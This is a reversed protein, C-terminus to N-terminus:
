YKFVVSVGLLHESYDPSQEGLPLVRGISDYTVGDLAWDRSVYDEYTYNLRLKLNKKMRYDAYLKITHVDASTEPFPLGTALVVNRDIFDIKGRSRSYTYDIGLDLKNRINKQKIGLGISDITDDYDAYWNPLWDPPPADAIGDISGAQDSTINEHSYFLYGTLDKKLLVSSDLTFTSQNSQSLGIVTDGYEEDMYQATVGLSVREHPQWSMNMVLSEQDRDAINYKRLLPNDDSNSVYGSGERDALGLKLVLQVDNTPRLRLKLKLRDEKTEEVESFTRNIKEHEYGGSLRAQRYMRYDAGLKLLQKKYSYPENTAIATRAGDVDQSDGWVYNYTDQPTHNDREDIRLSANLRLHRSTQSVLSIQGTTLYVKGDLSPRPLAKALGANITFPQFTEDQVQLGLAYIGSVRTADSLKYVGHMSLQHFQNDPPLALNGDTYRAGTSTYPSEWALADFGNVFLSMHYNLEYQLKGKNYELSLDMRHDTYDIPQPLMAIRTNGPSHGVVGGVPLLGEKTDMQYDFGVSWPNHSTIVAGFGLRKRETGIELSKLSNGTQTMANTDNGAVWGAPLTLSATEVGNFITKGKYQMSPIQDYSLYAKYAEVAGWSFLMSRSDLGIDDVKLFSYSTSDDYTAVDLNGTVYLGKNYLGTYRGFRMADDSLYALGLEASGEVHTDSVGPESEPYPDVGLTLLFQNRTFDYSGSALPGGLTMDNSDRDIFRYDAALYIGRTLYYKLGLGASLDKDERGIDNFDSVGYGLAVNGKLWASFRHELRTNLSTFLYGSSGELTTESLSRNLTATLRSKASPFWNLKAGVDAKSVSDFRSDDYDQSIFGARAELNLTKGVKHQVGVALNYGDSDRNYGFTDVANNYQRQDLLGRVFVKSNDSIKHTVRMGLGTILRDRDDNLLTGTARPINDYDLDEVTAAIRYIFDNRTVSYGIHMNRSIYTTPTIGSLDDDPSSRSEHEFSYGVGGFINTRRTLDYRGQIAAWYDDHDESVEDQYRGIDAGISVKLMHKGWTSYANLEPSTVIGFDSTENAATAYLNDDYVGSVTIRPVFRFDGSHYGPRTRVSEQQSSNVTTQPPDAVAQVYPYLIMGMVCSLMTIGNYAKNNM